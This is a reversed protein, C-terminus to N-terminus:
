PAREGDGFHVVGARHRQEHSDVLTRPRNEDEITLFEDAGLLVSDDIHRNDHGSM